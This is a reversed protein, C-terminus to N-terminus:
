PRGPQAAAGSHHASDTLTTAAARPTALHPDLRIAYSPWPGRLQADFADALRAPWIACCVRNDGAFEADRLIRDGIWVVPAGRAADRLAEDYLHVGLLVHPALLEAPLAGFYPACVEIFVRADPHVVDRIRTTIEALFAFYQVHDLLVRHEGGLADGADYVDGATEALAARAYDAPTDLPMRYASAAVAVPQRADHEIRYTFHVPRVM